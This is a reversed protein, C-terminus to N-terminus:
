KGFENEHRWQDALEQEETTPMDGYSVEAEREQKSWKKKPDPIVIQHLELLEIAHIHNQQELADAIRKLSRALLFAARLNQFVKM